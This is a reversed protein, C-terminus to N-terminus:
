LVKGATAGGTVPVCGWVTRGGALRHLPGNDGPGWPGGPQRAGAGQSWSLWRSGARRHEQASPSPWSPLTATPAAARVASRGWWASPEPVVSLCSRTRGCQGLRAGLDGQEQAPCPRVQGPGSPALRAQSPQAACHPAPPGARAVRPWHAWAPWGWPGM